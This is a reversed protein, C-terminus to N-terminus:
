ATAKAKRHAYWGEHPGKDFWEGHERLYAELAVSLAQIDPNKGGDQAALKYPDVPSRSTKGTDHWLVDCDYWWGDLSRGDRAKCAQHQIGHVVKIIGGWKHQLCTTPTYPFQM